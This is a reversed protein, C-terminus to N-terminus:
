LTIYLLIYIYILIIIGQVNCDAGNRVLLSVMAMFGKSCACHLAVSGHEPDKMNIVKPYSFMYDKFRELEGNLTIKIFESIDFNDNSNSNPLFKMSKGNERSM